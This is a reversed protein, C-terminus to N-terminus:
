EMMIVGLDMFIKKIWIAEKIVECVVIYKAERTSNAICSQKVSWNIAEGSL